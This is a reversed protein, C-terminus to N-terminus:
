FYDYQKITKALPTNWLLDPHFLIMWGSPNYVQGKEFEVTLVQGPAMFHLVGEDFDHPQQGYRMKVHFNKKLSIAYFDFVRTYSGSRLSELDQLDGRHVEAGAAMLASASADSRALGLVQHGANQLEKLLATGIFGTAGTVFVKMLEKKEFTSRIRLVWKAM